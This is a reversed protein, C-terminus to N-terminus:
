LDEDEDDSIVYVVPGACPVVPDGAQVGLVSSAAANGAPLKFIRMKMM